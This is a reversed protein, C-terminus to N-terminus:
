VDVVRVAPCRALRTRGRNIAPLGTVSWRKVAVIVADSAFDAM